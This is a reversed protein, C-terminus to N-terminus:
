KLLLLKKTQIFDNAKLRYFYIGSSVKNGNNNTANWIVSHSGAEKNGGILTKVLQGYINYIDLWIEGNEPISFSITTQPNFPNPYNQQLIYKKPLVNNDPNDIATIVSPSNTTFKIAFENELPSASSVYEDNYVYNLGDNQNHNEIGITNGGANAITHYQFIIEGDGTPTDGYNPNILIIQFTERADANSWHGVALWEIIFRNHAADHYYFIQGNESANSSFLDDWFAAVMSNIEDNHPLSYNQYSIQSGGGFAIFGDTSIRLLDYNQGYYKFTFPLTVTETQDSTTINIETGVDSIEVWDYAPAQEYLVDKSDYAYYGYSDAGTPSTATAEGMGIHFFRETEYSYNGNTTYLKLSFPIRYDAACDESVTIRFQNSSNLVASDKEINGFYGISDLITVAADESRIIGYVDTALDNGMNIVYMLLNVTEGPDLANNPIASELDDVLTNEYRLICSNVNVFITFDWSLEGSVVHLNFPIKYEEPCNDAVYFNFAEGTVSAGSAMDGYIVPTTTEVTAYECDPATLTAQVSNTSISGWNKLTFAITGHENPNILGDTNGDLDTIVPEGLPAVYREQAEVAISEEFPVVNGGRVLMTVTTESEQVMGVVAKGTEDTTAIVYDDAGSFCVKAGAVPLNGAATKVIVEAQSYGTPINEPYTVTIEQPVTKWIHTSPDGLICYVRYHYEVYPNEGYVNYLYLRGRLLAQGPTDMDERFMGVYIGKDIKNNYTTHTNSTPGVFAIAGRPSSVTGLKMWQEGFCNGSGANFMAVGCGISTIFPFRQGNNISSVDSTSFNYCTAHWGSSWGEGRYNLFSRGENLTAMVDNLDMSCGGDSMLTDVQSFGGDERLIEATFRKTEVQSEYYNNSCVTAKKFWATDEIYPNEEYLQFKNVMVQLRYETQTSLRGIMMEPFHDDGELEVFYDENPFTWKMAYTVYKIPFIGDDGIILVYTPPYEWIAYANLIHDKITEPNDSTAGIDSFKTIHIYTGTKHKWVAYPQFEDVYEDPMICLMVDRGTEKGEFKTDLMSQYNFIFSRYLPAFSPAIGKSPYKKINSNKGTGYNVRVTISSYVQLEKKVPNYQVPFISIRAIRFDRFISPESVEVRNQPYLNESSYIEENQIYETKDFGEIWSERAPPLNYGKFTHLEGTEIVEISVGQNDPIALVKSIYPVAPVGPETAFSESLLDVKQYDIGKAKFKSTEFGTIDIKIVTGTADDSILKVEPETKESHEKNLPIWEAQLMMVMLIIIFLTFIIRKLM